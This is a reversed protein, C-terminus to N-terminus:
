QHCLLSKVPETILDPRAFSQTINLIFLIQDAWEALRAFHKERESRSGILRVALGLSPELFEIDLRGRCRKIERVFTQLEVSISTM